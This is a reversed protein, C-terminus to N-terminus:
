VSVVLAARSAGQNNAFVKRLTDLCPACLSDQAEPRWVVCKTRSLAESSVHVLESMGSRCALWHHGIVIVDIVCVSVQCASTCLVTYLNHLTCTKVHATGSSVFHAHIVSLTLILILFPDLDLSFEKGIAWRHTCVTLRWTVNQAANDCASCADKM